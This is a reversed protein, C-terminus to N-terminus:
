KRSAFLEGNTKWTSGNDFSTRNMWHFSDPTVDTFLWQTIGNATGQKVMIFESGVVQGELISMSGDYTYCVDWKQKDPNYTRITTGYEQDPQPNHIREERSPCIFVDQIVSENLVRSFIWEGLIHREKETGKGDIWEFNWDGILQEFFSLAEKAPTDASGIIAEQFTTM